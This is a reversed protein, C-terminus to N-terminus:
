ASVNVLMATVVKGFAGKLMVRSSSVGEEICAEPLMEPRLASIFAGSDIHCSEPGAGFSINVTGAHPIVAPIVSDVRKVALLDSGVDSVKEEPIVVAAAEM